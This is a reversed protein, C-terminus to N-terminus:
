RMTTTLWPYVQPHCLITRLFSYMGQSLYRSTLTATAVSVIGELRHLVRQYDLDNASFKVLDSHSRHFPEDDEEWLRPRTASSHPVLVKGPRGEM